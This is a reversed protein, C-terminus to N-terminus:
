INYCSTSSLKNYNYIINLGDLLLNEDETVQNTCYPLIVKALGGTAVLKVDQGLQSKYRLIMGDIFSAMGLIVGSKISSVTNKGIIQDCEDIMGIYPLQVAASALAELSTNVGPFISHGLYNGNQDVACVTTATGLDFVILAKRYKYYAAAAGCILDAGVKEPNDTCIKLGTNINSCVMIANCSFACYVAKQLTVNLQPVVSSIIAHDIKYSHIKKLMLINIIECAYVYETKNKETHMRFTDVIKDDDFIGFVINTNGVDIALLM